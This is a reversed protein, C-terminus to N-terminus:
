SIPPARPQFAVRASSLYVLEADASQYSFEIAQPLLLVPPMAFLVTNAQAMVACIACVDNPHQDSDHNSAPQQQASAIITEPAPRDTANSADSQGPGSQMAPAAHAAVGHFHGFSLLFQIALAFLALRSGVRINSRFWRM